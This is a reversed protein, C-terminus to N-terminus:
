EILELQKLTNSIHEAMAKRTYNFALDYEKELKRMKEIIKRQQPLPHIPVDVSKLDNLSLANIFSGTKLRQMQEQVYSSTLIYYLYEPEVLNNSIRLIVIQSSAIGNNLERGVLGVKGITGRISLLIDREKVRYKEINHIRKGDVFRTKDYSIKGNIIDSIRIYPSPTLQVDKYHRSYESPASVGRVVEVLEGLKIYNTKFPREYFIPNYNSVVWSGSQIDSAGVLFAAPQHASEIKNTEKFERYKTAVVDYHKEQNNSDKLEAMFIKYVLERYESKELIILSTKIKTNTFLDVPFSIIGTILRNDLLYKRLMITDKSFLFREPLIIGMKGGPKLLSVGLDVFLFDLYKGTYVSSLQSHKPPFTQYGFPPMALIVNFKFSEKDLQNFSFIDAALIHTHGDGNIIMNAKAISAIRINKELGYLNENAYKEISSGLKDNQIKSIKNETYTLCSHLLGGFGTFPDLIRDSISPDLMKIVFDGILKPVSVVQSYRKSYWKDVTNRVKEYADKLIKQNNGTISYSQLESVAKSIVEETMGLNEGADFVDPYVRKVKEFLFHMRKTETALNKNNSPLLTPTSFLILDSDSSVEDVIKCLIIKQLSSIIKISDPLEQDRISEAIIWAIKELKFTLNTPVNLSGKRFPIEGKTRFPIDPIEIFHNSSIQNYFISSNGDSLIGYPANIAKMCAFLSEQHLPHLIKKIEVVLLPIEESDKREYVLIDPTLLDNNASISPNLKINSLTFGYKSKLVNTIKEMIAHETTM